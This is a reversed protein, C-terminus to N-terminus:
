LAEYAPEMKTVEVMMRRLRIGDSYASQIGNDYSYSTQIWYGEDPREPDIYFDNANTCDHKGGWEEGDVTDWDLVREPMGAAALAAERPLGDYWDFAAM